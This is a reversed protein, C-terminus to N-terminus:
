VMCPGLPVGGVEVQTVSGLPARTHVSAASTSIGTSVVEVALSAVEVENPPPPDLLELEGVEVETRHAARSTGGGGTSSALHASSSCATNQRCGSSTGTNKRPRGAPVAAPTAVLTPAPATELAPAAPATPSFTDDDDVDNDDNCCCCCCRVDKVVAGDVEAPATPVVAAAARAEVIVDGISIGYMAARVDVVKTSSGSPCRDACNTAGVEDRPTLMSIGLVTEAEDDDEADADEEEEEEEAEAECAEAASDTDESSDDATAGAVEEDADCLACSCSPCCRCKRLRVEEEACDSLSLTAPSTVEGANCEAASAPAASEAAIPTPPSLAGAAPPLCWESVASAITSAPEVDAEAEAAAVRERETECVVHAAVSAAARPAASAACCSTRRFFTSTSFCATRSSRALLALNFNSISEIFVVPDDAAVEVQTHPVPDDAAVEVAVETHPVAIGQRPSTPWPVM